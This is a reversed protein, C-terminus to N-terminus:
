CSPVKLVHGAMREVTAALEEGSLPRGFDAMAGLAGLLYALANSQSQLDPLNCVRDAATLIRSKADAM